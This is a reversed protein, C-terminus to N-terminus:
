IEILEGAPTLKYPRDSLVEDDRVVSSNVERIMKSIYPSEFMSSIIIVEHVSSPIVIFDGVIRELKEYMNEYLIAGAGFTQKENTLVYMPFDNFEEVHLLEGISDFRPPLLKETNYLAADMLDEKNIRSLALIDEFIVLNSDAMVDSIEIKFQLEMNGDVAKTVIGGQRKKYGKPLLTFFCRDLVEEKSSVIYQLKDRVDVNTM